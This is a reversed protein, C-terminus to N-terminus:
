EMEVYMTKVCPADFGTLWMDRVIVVKLPDKTDKLRNGLAKREQKTTHHMQWNEPDSSSSTMIVKIAGQMIM